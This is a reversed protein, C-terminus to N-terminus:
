QDKIALVSKGGWLGVNAMKVLIPFEKRMYRSSTGYIIRAAKSLEMNVQILAHFHNYAVAMEKMKLGDKDDCIQCVIEKLRDRMNEQLFMSKRYKTSAIFHWYEEYPEYNSLVIM